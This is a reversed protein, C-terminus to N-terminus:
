TGCLQIDVDVDVSTSHVNFTQLILEFECSTEAGCGVLKGEVSCPIGPRKRQKQRKPLQWKKWRESVDFFCRLHTILHHPILILLCLRKSQLPPAEVHKESTAADAM